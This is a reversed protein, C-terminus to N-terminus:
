KPVMKVDEPQIFLVKGINTISNYRYSMQYATEEDINIEQYNDKLCKLQLPNGKGEKVFLYWNDGIVKKQVIVVYGSCEYFNFAYNTGALHIIFVTFYM